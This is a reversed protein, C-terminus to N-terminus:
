FRSILNGQITFYSIILNRITNLLM